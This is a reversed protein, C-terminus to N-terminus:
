GRELTSKLMHRADHLDNRVSSPPRDLMQAIEDTKYGEYYHLHVVSRYREPLALVAELLASPEAPAGGGVTDAVNDPLESTRTRESSKLVDKCHNAACVILWAKEHEADEFARPAKVLKMFVAQTADEADHPTKLYSYCLRYVTDAHRGFVGAIDLAGISSADKPRAITGNRTTEM